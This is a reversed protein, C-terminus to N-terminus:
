DVVVGTVVNGGDVCWCAITKFVSLLVFKSELVSILRIKFLECFVSPQLPVIKPTLTRPPARPSNIITAIPNNM